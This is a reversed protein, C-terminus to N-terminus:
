PYIFGVFLSASATRQDVKGQGLYNEETFTVTDGSVGTVLVVHGFVSERTQGVAGVRPISGTAMGFSRASSLYQNANGMVGPFHFHSNVYATCQGPVAGNSTGWFNGLYIVDGIVSNIAISRGHLTNQQKAKAALQKQFQAEAAAKQQAEAANLAVLWDSSTNTDVAPILLQQGSTISNASAASIHNAELITGPSLNYRDAVSVISDGPAVQYVIAAQQQVEGTTVTQDSLIQPKGFFGNSQNNTLSAAIKTTAPVGYAQGEGVTIMLFVVVLAAFGLQASYRQGFELLRRTSPRRIFRYVAIASKETWFQVRRWAVSLLRLTHQSFKQTTQRFPLSSIRVERSKPATRKRFIRLIFRRVILVVVLIGGM